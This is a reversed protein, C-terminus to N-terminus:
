EGKHNAVHSVSYKILKGYATYIYLYNNDMLPASKIENSSVHYRAVLGGNNTKLFHIYGFGDGICIMSGNIIVPSTLERYKLVPQRWMVSGDKSSIAFIEDSKTIVYIVGKSYAFSMYSSINKHWRAYGNKIYLKSLGGGNYGDIYVNNKYVIPNAYIGVTKNNYLFNDGLDRQWLLRGNILNLCVVSGNAFGLIVFGNYIVPSSSYNLVIEPETKQYLWLTKGNNVSLAVVSGSISKVVVINRSVAVKTISINTLKHLWIIKGTVKNVAIIASSSTPIIVMNGYVFPGATFGYSLARSWITKGSIKDIKTLYGTASATYIFHKGMAPTLTLDYGHYGSSSSNSWVKNLIIKNNIHTLRSPKDINNSTNFLACSSLSCCVIVVFSLIYAIKNIKM